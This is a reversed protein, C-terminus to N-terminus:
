YTKCRMQLKGQKKQAKLERNLPLLLLQSVPQPNDDEPHFKGIIFLQELRRMEQHSGLKFVEQQINISCIHKM